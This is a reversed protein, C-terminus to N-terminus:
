KNGKRGTSTVSNSDTTDKEAIWDGPYYKDEAVRRKCSGSMYERSSFGGTYEYTVEPYNLTFSLNNGDVTYTGTGGDSDTVTGSNLDGTFTLTVSFSSGDSYGEIIKWNGRIDYQIDTYINLVHNKTITLTGSSPIELSDFRVSLNRYGSLLRFDYDIQDGANYYYYGEEPTGTAGEEMLVTLSFEGTGKFAYATLFQDYAVTFSGSPDVEVGDLTVKLDSYGDLISFSYNFEDGEKYEYEGAEPTGTAGPHVTVTITYTAKEVEEAKKCHSLTFALVLLMTVSFITLFRKM